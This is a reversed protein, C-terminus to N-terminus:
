DRPVALGVTRVVDALSGVVIAECRSHRPPTGSGADQLASSLAGGGAVEVSRVVTAGRMRDEVPTLRQPSPGVFNVM